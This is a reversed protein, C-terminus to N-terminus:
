FLFLFKNSEEYSFSVLISTKNIMFFFFLLFMFSFLYNIEKGMKEVEGAKYIQLYSLLGLSNLQLTNGLVRSYELTLHADM